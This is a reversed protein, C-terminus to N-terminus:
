QHDEEDAAQHRESLGVKWVDEVVGSLLAARGAHKRLYRRIILKNGKHSLQEHSPDEPKEPGLTHLNLCLFPHLVIRLDLCPSAQLRDMLGM